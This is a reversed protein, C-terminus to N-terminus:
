FRGGVGISFTDVGLSLTPLLQVRCRKGRSQQHFGLRAFLYGAALTTAGASLVPYSAPSGLVEALSENPTAGHSLATTTLAAGGVLGITGGTIWAIGGSPGPRQSIRRELEVDQTESAVARPEPLELQTAALVDHGGHLLRGSHLLDSAQAVSPWAVTLLLGLVTLWVTAM